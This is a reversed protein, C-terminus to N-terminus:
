PCFMHIPVATLQTMQGILTSVFNVTDQLNGTRANFDGVLLVDGKLKYCNVEEELENIYDKDKKNEYREPSFYVTGLHIDNLLGFSEKKNKGM